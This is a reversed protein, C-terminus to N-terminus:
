YCIEINYFIACVKIPIEQLKVTELDCIQEMMEQNVSQYQKWLESNDLHFYIRSAFFKVHKKYFCALLYAHFHCFRRRLDGYISRLNGYETQICSFISWFFEMNPGKERLSTSQSTSHQYIKKKLNDDLTTSTFDSVNYLNM